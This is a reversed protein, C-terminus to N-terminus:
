VERRREETTKLLNEPGIAGRVSPNQGVGESIKLPFEDLIKLLKETFSVTEEGIRELVRFEESDEDTYLISELVKRLLLDVGQLIEEIGQLGGKQTTRPNKKMKPPKRKETM